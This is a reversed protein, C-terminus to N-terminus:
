KTGMSNIATRQKSPLNLKDIIPKIMPTLDLAAM